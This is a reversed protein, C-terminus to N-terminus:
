SNVCYSRYVPLVQLCTTGTSLFYRYVPLVQLCSTDTSLFYRYVPLVQLCSTGTSLFYRYVPLVQLCTTCTSLFCSYVPLLQLCSAATSLFCSYVPARIFFGVQEAKEAEEDLDEQINSVRWVELDTYTFESVHSLTPSQYTTSLPKAMSHGKGYECDLWLGFYDLQGGMGQLCHLYTSLLIVCYICHTCYDTSLMTHATALMTYVTSLMTHATALMTYVTTLMTHETALM